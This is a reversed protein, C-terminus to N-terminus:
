HHYDVIEIVCIVTTGERKKIHVVLRWQDNLRFSHQLSRNGKLKEFRLGRMAIFDREDKAARIFRMVKRFGRVVEAGYGANYGVDAELRQLPSDAFEVDM